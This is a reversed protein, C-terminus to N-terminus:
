VSIRSVHASVQCMTEHYIKVAFELSLSLFSKFSSQHDPTGIHQDSNGSRFIPCGGMDNNM